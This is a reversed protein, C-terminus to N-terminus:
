APVYLKSDGDYGELQIVRDFRLGIKELLRGSAENDLSTIAVVREIGLERAYAMTAAAAEHAYGQSRFAPMFAFGIDVDDLVDRKLLGCMGIPTGDHLRTLFLGFGHQAYSARPGSDIYQRADDLTRVGKDGIFRLFAEDNLLAIIFEADDSTMHCLEMRETRLITTVPLRWSDPNMGTPKNEGTSLTADGGVVLVVPSQFGM